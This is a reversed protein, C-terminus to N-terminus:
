EESLPCTIDKNQDRLFPRIHKALYRTREESLGAAQLVPPRIREVIATSLTFCQEPQGDATRAFVCGPSDAHVRFQQYGQIGPLPRFNQGLFAKWDRWEFNQTGDDKQYVVSSNSIASVDAVRGSFHNTM